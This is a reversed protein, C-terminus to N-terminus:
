LLHEARMPSRKRCKTMTDVSVFRLARAEDYFLSAKNEAKRIVCWDPVGDLAVKLPNSKMDKRLLFRREIAVAASMATLPHLDDGAGESAGAAAVGGAALSGCCIPPCSMTFSVRVGVEFPCFGSNREAVIKGPRPM